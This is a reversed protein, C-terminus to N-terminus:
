RGGYTTHKTESYRKGNRYGATTTTVSAPKAFGSRLGIITGIINESERLPRYTHDDRNNATQSRKLENDADRDSGYYRGEEGVLFTRKKREEIDWREVEQDLDKFSEKLKYELRNTYANSLQAQGSARANYTQAYILDLQALAIRDCLKYYTEAQKQSLKYEAKLKDIYPQYTAESVQYDLSAQTAIWNYYDAQNELLPVQAAIQKVQENSVNTDSKIKDITADTLEDFRGSQKDLLKSQSDKLNADAAAVKSENQLQALSLIMSSDFPVYPPVSNPAPAGSSVSATGGTYGDMAAPSLGAMQLGQKQLSPSLMTLEKQRDYALQSMKEQWRRNKSNLNSNAATGVLGNILGAAGAGIGIATATGIPM